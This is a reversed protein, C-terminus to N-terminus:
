YALNKYNINYPIEIIFETGKNKQSSVNIFGEM